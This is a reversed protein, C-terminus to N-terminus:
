QFKSENLAGIRRQSSALAKLLETTTVQLESYYLKAKDLDMVNIKSGGTLISFFSTPKNKFFIDFVRLYEGHWKAHMTEIDNYFQLGLLEKVHNEEAYLWKGFECQTKALATPSDVKQGKILAEIKAMQVEHSKRANDIAEISKTKNMKNDKSNNLM